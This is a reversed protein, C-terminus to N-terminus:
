GWRPGLNEWQELLEPVRELNAQIDDRSAEDRQELREATWELMDWLCYAVARHLRTRADPASMSDALDRAFAVGLDEVGPVLDVAPDGRGLDGFDIVGVVEGGEDFLVHEDYLDAHVLVWGSEPPLRLQDAVRACHQRQSEPLRTLVQTRIRDRNWFVPHYRAEPLPAHIESLPYAHLRDVFPGLKRAIASRRAPDLARWQAASLTTGVVARHGQVALGSKPDRGRFEPIPIALEVRDALKPLVEWEVELARSAAASLAFRFVHRDGVWWAENTEGRGAFRLPRDALEPAVQRIAEEAQERQM